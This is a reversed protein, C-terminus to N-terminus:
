VEDGRLHANRARQANNIPEPIYDDAADCADCRKSHNLRESSQLPKKCKRCRIPCEARGFTRFALRRIDLLAGELKVARQRRAYARTDM